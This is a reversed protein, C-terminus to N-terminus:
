DWKLSETNSSWVGYRSSYEISNIYEVLHIRKHNRAQTGASSSVAPAFRPRTESISDDLIADNSVEGCEVHLIGALSFTEEKKKKKGKTEPKEKV